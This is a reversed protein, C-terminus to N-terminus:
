TPCFFCLNVIGQIIVSILKPVNTEFYDYQLVLAILMWMWCGFIGLAVCLLPQDLYGGFSRM